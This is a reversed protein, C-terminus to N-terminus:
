YDADPSTPRYPESHVRCDRCRCLWHDERNVKPPEPIPEDEPEADYPASIPSLAEVAPPPAGTALGLAAIRQKQYPLLGKPFYHMVIYEEAVFFTMAYAKAGSSHHTFWYHDGYKASLRTLADTKKLVDTRNRGNYNHPIYFNDCLFTLDNDEQKFFQEETGNARANALAAEREAYTRTWYRVPYKMVVVKYDSPNSSTQIARLLDAQIERHNNRIHRDIDDVITDRIHILSSQRRQDVADNLSNLFTNNSFYSSM